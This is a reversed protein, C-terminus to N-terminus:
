ENFGLSLREERTLKALAQEKLKGNKFDNFEQATEYVVFQRKGIYDTKPNYLKKAEEETAVYCLHNQRDGGDWIEVTWCDIIQM